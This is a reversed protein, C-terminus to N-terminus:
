VYSENFAGKSPVLKLSFQYGNSSAISIIIATTAMSVIVHTYRLMTTAKFSRVFFAVKREISEM